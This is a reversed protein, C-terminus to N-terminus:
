IPGWKESNKILHTALISSRVKNEAHLYLLYTLLPHSLRYDINLRPTHLKAKQNYLFFKLRLRSHHRQISFNELNTDMNSIRGLKRKTFLKNTQDNKPLLQIYTASPELLYPTKGVAM